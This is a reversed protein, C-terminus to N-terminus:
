MEKNSYHVKTFGFDKNLWERLATQLKKYYGKQYAETTVWWSADVQYDLLEETLPTRLGMGYLYFCGIYNNTNDYIAYAFSSGDRFEREHWALDLLDFEESVAESPWLGGRTNRIIDLSSNVAEMDAHLDERTLPRATLNEYQLSTPTDTGRPLVLKKTYNKYDMSVIM